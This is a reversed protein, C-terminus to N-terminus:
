YCVRNKGGHKARYMQQDAAHLIADHEQQGPRNDALGMSLTVQLGPHVGQWPFDAVQQRITECLQVATALPTNPFIIVFEEGGFRAIIDQPRSHQRLLVALQKLTEDGIAHSLKDNIQKFNDIDCLMLSFPLQQRQARELTQVLLIDLTRRNLLGTLGDERSLKELSQNKVALEQHLQELEQMKQQMQAQSSQLEQWLVEREAEYARRMSIDLLYLTAGNDSPYIRLDYWRQQSPIFFELGASQKSQMAQEISEHVFAPVDAFCDRAHRGLFSSRSREVMHEIVHNAYVIKGQRDIAVFGDTIRELLETQVKLSYEARQRAQQEREFDMELMLGTVYRQRKQELDHKLRHSYAQQHQLAQRFNGQAQCVQALHQLIDTQFRQDELAEARQLADELSHRAADINGQAQQVMGLTMMAAMHYRPHPQKELLALARQLQQEAQSLQGQQLYVRATNTLTIALLAYSRLKDFELTARQYYPLAETYAERELYLDAIQVTTIAVDERLEYREGHGQAEHFYHLAKDDQGLYAFLSAINALPYGKEPHEIQQYLSSSQRFSHLAAAYDGTIRQALGQTNYLRAGSLADEHKQALATGRQCIDIIERYRGQDYWCRSLWIYIQYEYFEQQQAQSLQLAPELYGLTQTHSLHYLSLRGLIILMRLQASNFAPDLASQEAENHAAQLQQLTQYSSVILESYREAYADAYHTELESSLQEQHQWLFDAIAQVRVVAPSLTHLKKWTAILASALAM